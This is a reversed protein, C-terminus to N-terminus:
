ALYNDLHKRNSDITNLQLHIHQANHNDPETIHDSQINTEKNGNRKKQRHELYPHISFFYLFEAFSIISFGLFLGLIGGVNAVVDTRSFLERRRTETFEAEHYSITVASTRLSFIECLFFVPTETDAIIM